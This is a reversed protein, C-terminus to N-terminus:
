ELRERYPVCVYTLTEAQRGYRNMEKMNKMQREPSRQPYNSKKTIM